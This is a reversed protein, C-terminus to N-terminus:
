PKYGSRMLERAYKDVLENAGDGSHSKVWRFSVGPKHSDIETQIEAIIQLNLRAIKTGGAVGIAYESDSVILYPLKKWPKKTKAIRIGELFAILEMQNNTVAPKGAVYEGELFTNVDGPVGLLAAWGGHQGPNGPGVSGDTTIIVTPDNLMAKPKTYTDTM